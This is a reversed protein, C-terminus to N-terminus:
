YKSEAIIQFMLILAVATVLDGKHTDLAGVIDLEQAKAWLETM